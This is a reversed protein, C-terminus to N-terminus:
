KFRKKFGVHTGNSSKLTLQMLLKPEINGPILEFNRIVNCFTSKIELMAFKQGICNRPGASFPIYVFPNENRENEESFREPIFSYPDKFYKPDRNLSFIILNVNTGVPVIKGDLDLEEDLNRGVQPVPPYLRMSEKICCELYKMDQLQNLTPDIDLDDGIVKIIEEYVKQQAKPNQSLLYLGFTLASTITDHGEFMFTDVEEAIDENTLPKGDVTSKLLVDLLALKKKIGVDDDLDNIEGAGEDNLITKRRKEIIDNTFGHLVQLCYDYRQKAKILSFFFDNRQWFIMM